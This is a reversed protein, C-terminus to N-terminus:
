EMAGPSLSTIAPHVELAMLDRARWAQGRAAAALFDAEHARQKEPPDFLMALGEDAWPPPPGATFRDALVVHVLEHALADPIAASMQDGMVDIRRLSVADHVFEISTAGRAGAPAGRIAGRFSDAFGHVHVICRPRWVPPDVVGLYQSSIARRVGAAHAAIRDALDRGVGTVVFSDDGDRAPATVSVPEEAHIPVLGASVPFLLAWVVMGVLVVPPEFAVERRAVGRCSWRGFMASRGDSM